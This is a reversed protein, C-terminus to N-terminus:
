NIKSTLKFPTFSVTTRIPLKYRLLEYPTEAVRRKVKREFSIIPSSFCGEIWNSLTSSTPAVISYTVFDPLNSSSPVSQHGPIISKRILEKFRLISFSSSKFFITVFGLFHCFYMVTNDLCLWIISHHIFQIVSKTLLIPFDASTSQRRLVPM